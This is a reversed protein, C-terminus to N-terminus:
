SAAELRVRPHTHEPLDPIAWGRRAMDNVVQGQYQVGLGADILDRAREGQVRLFPECNALIITARMGTASWRGSRSEVSQHPTPCHEECNHRQYKRSTEIVKTGTVEGLWMLSGYRGSVQIVPLVSPGVERTRLAALNDILAAAYAVDATTLGV